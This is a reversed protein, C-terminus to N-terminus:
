SGRRSRQLKRSRALSSSYLSLSAGKASPNTSVEVRDVSSAPIQALFQALQEGTLPSSRGNIQVVVNTNGRLSVNNSGDVEVSPVNRLVDVATGGSATTMNKASYSNRDPALAVDQREATVVQSELKVAVASLALTGLDVLPHETAVTVDSRVLPAFGLARVRVTYRGAPLGDIQFSGDPGLQAGGVVSTDTARRVTVSGTALGRGSATEVVRGRIEGARAAVQQAAGATSQAGTAPTVGVFLIAGLAAATLRPVNVRCMANFISTMPSPSLIVSMVSRHAESRLYERVDVQHVM